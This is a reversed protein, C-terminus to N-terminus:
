GGEPDGGAPQAGRRLVRRDGVRRTLGSRDLHATLALAHRRGVGWLDRLEGITMPGDALARAASERAGAAAPADLWLDGAEVAQGGERLAMLAREVAAPELGTREALSAPTPGRLGFAALAEAVSRAV